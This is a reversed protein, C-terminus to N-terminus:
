GSLTAQHTTQECEVVLLQRKLDGILRRRPHEWACLDGRKRDANCKAVTVTNISTVSRGAGTPAGARPAPEAIDM